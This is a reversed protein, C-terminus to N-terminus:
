NESQIEVNMKRSDNNMWNKTVKKKKKRNKKEEILHLKIEAVAVKEGITKHPLIDSFAFISTDKKTM